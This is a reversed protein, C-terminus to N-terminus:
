YRAHRRSLAADAPGAVVDLGGHRGAAPAVPATLFHLPRRAGRWGLWLVSLGLVATLVVVWYDGGVGSGRLGPSWAWQYSPGDMPGRLLPLWVLTMVVGTWVLLLRLLAGPKWDTM